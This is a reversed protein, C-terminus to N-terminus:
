VLKKLFRAPNGAWVEGDPVDKTVVSGAGIVSRRGIRVGKLIISGSGIFAGDCIEVLACPIKAPDNEMREDFDSSHFDTDYIKVDTGILVNNGITVSRRVAIVCNSMGTNDGITLQAGPIVYLSTRVGNGTPNASPSSSITVNKGLKIRGGGAISLRGGITPFSDFEVARRKLLAKNYSKNRVTKIKSLISM